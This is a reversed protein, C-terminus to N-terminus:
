ATRAPLVMVLELVFRLGVTTVPPNTPTLGPVASVPKVAGAAVAVM